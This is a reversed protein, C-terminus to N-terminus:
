RPSLVSILHRLPHQTFAQDIQFDRILIHRATTRQSLDGWPAGQRL